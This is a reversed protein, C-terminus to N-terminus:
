DMTIEYIVFGCMSVGQEKLLAAALQQIDDALLLAFSAARGV